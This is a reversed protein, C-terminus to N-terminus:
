YGVYRWGLDVQEQTIGHRMAHRAKEGGADLKANERRVYFRYGTIIILFVVDCALVMGLGAYFHPPAYWVYASWVNSTGGIANILALGAARKPYPRAVHLSLTNYIFLQPVVNCIPTLMIAFYRAGINLTAVAIVYTLIGISLCIVIPLYIKGNRDSYWSLGYFFFCVLIYPPATLVLTIINDYGLSKIITPFFNGVSGMAQSMIMCFILTYVKPDALASVYAKINSGSDHAEAAGAEQEIRWVAYEREEPTLIKANHPYEPMFTAFILGLGVTAVGEIIFLWRWGRIGHAGDLKLVGAAILGGFGNGLQQGIFLGAYRKGLEKKTYWASLFYLCGPFFVAESAGLLVRIGLLAPYSHVAATCASITGWIVVACCIYLGPRSFLSILYNSPIQFPIYGAYLIAIATAFQQTTMHLDDMIGQLKASAFNQRDIYNLVYLVMIIPLIVADMKRVMKKEMKLIEDQSMGVLSAPLPKEGNEIEVHQTEEKDIAQDISQVQELPTTM